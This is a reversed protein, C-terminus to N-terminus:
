RLIVNSTINLRKIFYKVYYIVHYKVYYKEKFIAITHVSDPVFNPRNLVFLENFPLSLTIELHFPTNNENELSSLTCM